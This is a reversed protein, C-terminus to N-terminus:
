IAEYIRHYQPFNMMATMLEQYGCLSTPNGDWVEALVHIGGAAAQLSAISGPDVHRASDIRLGDVSYNNALQSIWTNFMNQVENDKQRVTKPPEFLAVGQSNWRSSSETRERYVSKGGYNNGSMMDGWRDKWSRKREGEKSPPGLIAAISAASAPGSWRQQGCKKENYSPPQGSPESDWYQPPAQESAPSSLPQTSSSAEGDEAAQIKKDEM